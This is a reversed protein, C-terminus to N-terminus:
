QLAFSFTEKFLDFIFLTFSAIDITEQFDFLHTSIKMKGRTFAELLWIHMHM